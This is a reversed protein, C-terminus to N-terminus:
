YGPGPALRALFMLLSYSSGAGAAIVLWWCLVYLLSAFFLAFGLRVFFWVLSFFPIRNLLRGIRRAEARITALEAELETDAEARAARIAEARAARLAELEEDLAADERSNKTQRTSSTPQCLQRLTETSVYPDQHPM